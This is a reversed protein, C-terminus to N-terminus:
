LAVGSDHQMLKILAEATVVVNPYGPLTKLFERIVNTGWIAHYLQQPEDMMHGLTICEVGDVMVHHGRELVFNNIQDVFVMEPEMIDKPIVWGGNGIRVPHETTVWCQGILCMEMEAEIRQTLSCEVKVLSGDSLQVLDGACIDRARRAGCETLIKCDGYICM